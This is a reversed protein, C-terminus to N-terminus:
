AELQNYTKQFCEQTLTKIKKGVKFRRMMTIDTPIVFTKGSALKLPTELYHKILGVLRVHEHWGLSIPIQFVVEDHTQALLEVNKFWPSYYILNLGRENIIDGVSGQPICAFAEKFLENCIKGLFVTNRGMLNTLTKNYMINQRVMTHYKTRVEPYLKFYADLILAAQNASIELNLALENKGIDYNSSHNGKKGWFRKTHTGDGLKCPIEKKDEEAIQEMTSDSFISSATLSHVDTGNEFAEIMKTVEGVYAVIRNEAQSLDLSYAVYDIDAMLFRQISHPWNQLNTGSGFINESSSLRSYRTGVPDYSCRIRFTGDPEEDFKEIALYTSNLKVLHRIKLVLDAELCGKIKLKKMAKEDTSDCKGVKFGHEKYFYEILQKPSNANLERGALKNLHNKTEEIELELEASKKKIGEIDVKIGHEMMYVLPGVVARTRDYTAENKQKAIYNKQSEFACACVLSDMANYQWLQQWPGGLRFWKKGDEKYYPYDTHISTIFDLGKPYDPMIIKQAIMTDHIKDQRMPIKIGYRRFLFACDFTLNQGLLKRNPDELIKALRLWISLEQEPNFYDGAASVFPISMVETPSTALSICSVEENYVELDYTLLDNTTEIKSLFECVDEYSPEITLKIEEPKFGNESIRKAKLMDFQILRRNMFQGRIVTSPHICPIIFKGPILTSELVSGRWKTVGLRSTLAFLAINGIALIAVCPSKSLENKLLTLYDQADESPQYGLIKQGKKLEKFYYDIPHDFDKIVNTLYCNSRVLGVANLCTDLEQGSQGIFPRNEIVEWRGPQEGVILIKASELIGEPKVYTKKSLM